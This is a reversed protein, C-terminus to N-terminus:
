AFMSLTNIFLQKNVCGSSMQLEGPTAFNLTSCTFYNCHPMDGGDVGPKLMLM